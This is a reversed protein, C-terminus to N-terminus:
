LVPESAFTQTCTLYHPFPPKQSYLFDNVQKQVCVSLLKLGLKALNQCMKGFVCKLMIYM